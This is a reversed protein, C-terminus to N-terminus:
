REQQNPSSVGGGNGTTPASPSVEGRAKALADRIAWRIPQPLAFGSRDLTEVVEYLDPAAAILHANAESTARYQPVFRTVKAVTLGDVAM